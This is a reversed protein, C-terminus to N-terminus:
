LVGKRMNADLDSNAAVCLKIKKIFILQKGYPMSHFLEARRWGHSLRVNVNKVMKIETEAFCDHELM